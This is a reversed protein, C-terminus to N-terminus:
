MSLLRDDNDGLWDFFKGLIKYLVYGIGMIILGVICVIQARLFAHDKESMLMLFITYGLWYLFGIFGKQKKNWKKYTSM